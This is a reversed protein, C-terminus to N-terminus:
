KPQEWHGTFVEEAPGTMFVHSSSEDWRIELDGGLLHLTASRDLRGSLCGAVLAACAGTGCAMTMGSGREWTLMHANQRSEVKVLHSNMRDPFAAHRELKPGIEQIYSTGPMEDVFSVLHPNGMSVFIAILDDVIWEQADNHPDMPTLSAPDVPIRELELIPEGMDVTVSRVKGAEYEVSIPLVGAGTEIRILGDNLPAYGRDVVLKAVCRVANGCMEGESGDANFVRMKAQAGLDAGKRTTPSVLIVGDAGVGRHRDSMRIALESLDVRQSLTPTEFADLYLYDNGIGHMKTFCIM